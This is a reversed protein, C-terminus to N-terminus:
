GRWWEAMLRIVFLVIAAVACVAVAQSYELAPAGFPALESSLFQVLLAFLFFGGNTLIIIQYRKM